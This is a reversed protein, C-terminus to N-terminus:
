IFSIKSTVKMKFQRSNVFFIESQEFVSHFVPLSISTTISCQYLVVSAVVLVLYRLSIFKVMIFHLKQFWSIWYRFIQLHIEILSNHGVSTHCLYVANRMISAVRNFLVSKCVWFKFCYFHQKLVKLLFLILQSNSLKSVQVNNLYLIRNTISNFIERFISVFVSSYISASKIVTFWGARKALFHQCYWSWPWQWSPLDNAFLIHNLQLLSLM